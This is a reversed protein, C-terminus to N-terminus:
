PTSWWRDIEERSLRDAPGLAVLATQTAGPARRAEVFQGVIHVEYPGDNTLVHGKLRYLGDPRNTLRDGLTRRDHVTDSVHSWQTYHPHPATSRGM